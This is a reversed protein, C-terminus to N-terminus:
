LDLRRITGGVANGCADFAFESPVEDITPVPERSRQDAFAVAEARGPPILREIQNRLTKCFDFRLVTGVSEGKDRRGFASVFFAVQHM